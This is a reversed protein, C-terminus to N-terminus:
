LFEIDDAEEIPDISLKHDSPFYAGYKGCVPDYNLVLRVVTGSMSRPLIGVNFKMKIKRGLYKPDPQAYNLSDERSQGDTNLQSKTPEFDDDSM